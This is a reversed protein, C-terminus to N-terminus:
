VSAIWLDWLCAPPVLQPPQVEPHDVLRVRLPEGRHERQARLHLRQGKLANIARPVPVAMIDLLRFPFRTALGEDDASFIQDRELYPPRQSEICQLRALHFERPRRM